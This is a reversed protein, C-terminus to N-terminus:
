RSNRKSRQLFFSVFCFNDCTWLTPTCTDNHHWIKWHHIYSKEKKHLFPRIFLTGRMRSICTLRLCEHVPPNHPLFVMWGFTYIIHVYSTFVPHHVLLYWCLPTIPKTLCCLIHLYRVFLFLVIFCFLLVILNNVDWTSCLRDNFIHYSCSVVWVSYLGKMPFLFAM